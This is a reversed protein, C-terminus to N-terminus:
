PTSKVVRYFRKAEDVLDSSGAPNGDGSIVDGMTSFNELDTSTEVQYNFGVETEWSLVVGAGASATLVSPPIDNRLSIDDIMVAGEDFGGTDAGNSAVFEVVVTAAGAPAVIGPVSIEEWVGDGGTFTTFPLSGALETGSGDLWRLRYQQQYSGESGLQQAWFSFDYTAGPTISGGQAVVDQSFESTQPFGDDFIYMFMSSTGTRSTFTQEAPWDGACTWFEACLFNAPDPTEFGPNLFVETYDPASDASVLSVDDILVEGKAEVSDVAGTKGIIQIFASDANAPAVQDALSIMVWEGSGGTFTTFPGDDIVGGMEDLWSLKFEQVYSVGSSIQKAMFSFDYSKGPVISAGSATLNQQIESVHATPTTDNQVQIQMSFSGTNADTMTRMPVQSGLCAWKEACGAVAPDEVEFSGNIANETFVLETEIVRYFASPTPDIVSTVGDGVIPDGLDTWTMNDSSEQPQYTSTPNTPTWTVVNGQEICVEVPTVECDLGFVVEDVYFGNQIGAVAGAALQLRVLVSDAEAPPDLDILSFEQYDTSLGPGFTILSELTGGVVGGGDSNDQDLWQVEAFVNIGEFDLHDVKAQFTLSYLQAPDVSGVPLVQQVFLGAGVPNTTNDISMYGHATGTQADTESRGSFGNGGGGIEEWGTADAGSGAEFGGNELLNAATANTNVMMFGAAAWTM